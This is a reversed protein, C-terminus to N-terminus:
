KPPKGGCKIVSHSIRSGLGHIKPKMKPEHKPDAHMAQM